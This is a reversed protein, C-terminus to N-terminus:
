PRKRLLLVILVAGIIAVFIFLGAIAPIFYLDAASQQLANTPQTTTAPQEFSMITQASSSYYSDTGDFTAIVKYTGPVDPAFTYSYQGTMDSTTTGITYKNNNPDIYSLTVPVGTANDPKPQQMYLYEMWASMSTDSIAPTGAAPIGLCTQGPSQDTVTGKILIQSADNM